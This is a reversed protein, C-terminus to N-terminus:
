GIKLHEDTFYYPNIMKKAFEKDLEKDKMKINERAIQKLTKPNYVKKIKKRIPTQEEKFLWEPVIIEDQRINELHKKSRLNNQMLHETSMLIVFMVDADM